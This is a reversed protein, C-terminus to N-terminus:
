FLRDLGTEYVFDAHKDQLENLEDETLDVETDKWYASIVFFYLDPYDSTDSDMEEIYINNTDM